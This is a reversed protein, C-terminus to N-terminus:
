DEGNSFERRNLLITACLLYLFVDSVYVAVPLISFRASNLVDYVNIGPYIFEKLFNSIFAIAQTFYYMILPMTEEYSSMSVNLSPGFMSGYLLVFFATVNLGPPFVRIMVMLASYGLANLAVNVIAWFDCDVLSNHSQLTQACNFSAIVILMICFVGLSGALWKSVIYQSRAIPRTFLLSLYEGDSLTRKSAVDDQIFAFSIMMIAMPGLLIGILMDMSRGDPLMDTLLAPGIVSMGLLGLASSLTNVKAFLSYLFVAKNM